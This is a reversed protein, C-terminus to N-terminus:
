LIIIVAKIRLEITLVIWNSSVVMINDYGLSSVIALFTNLRSFSQDRGVFLVRGLANIKSTVCKRIIISSGMSFQDRPKSIFRFCWRSKSFDHALDMAGSVFDAKSFITSSAGEKFGPSTLKIPIFAFTFSLPSSATVIRIRLPISLVMLKSFIGSPILSALPSSIARPDNVSSLKWTFALVLLGHVNIKGFLI